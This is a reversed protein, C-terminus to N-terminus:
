VAPAGAPYFARSGLHFLQRGRMGKRTCIVAGQDLTVQIQQNSGPEFIHDGQVSAAERDSLPIIPEAGADGLAEFCKLVQRSAPGGAKAHALLSISHPGRIRQAGPQAAVFAKVVKLQVLM